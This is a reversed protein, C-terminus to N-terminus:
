SQGDEERKRESTLSKKLGRLAEIRGQVRRFKDVDCNELKTRAQDIKVDILDMFAQFCPSLKFESLRFLCDDEGTM